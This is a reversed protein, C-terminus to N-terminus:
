KFRKREGENFAKVMNNYFKKQQSNTMLNLNVATLLLMTNNALKNLEAKTLTNNSKKNIREKKITKKPKKNNIVRKM